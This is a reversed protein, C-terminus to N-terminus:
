EQPDAEASSAAREAAAAAPAIHAGLWQSLEDLVQDQEPENLIEHYLGEYPTITKDASGIRESLMVSGRPPCLRDATGYMILTPVTIAPVAEPFSGIAAALEAVTRVPLKGHHVLPDAVYAAVVDPDRSVLSADIEILGMRPAIASLIKSIVRMPAPAAELAALPGSLILGDLRDQHRIAYSVSITGGMSHGLLFVPLGSHEDAALVVLTDLDAVANAIRDIVARPGESYGHGRHEIAYTAYGDAVLRAAVHSYRGAHEGAGHAIVVVARPEGDPLWVRWHIRVGGAGSFSGERETM